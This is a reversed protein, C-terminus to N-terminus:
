RSKESSFNKTTKRCLFLIKSGARFQRWFRLIKKWCTMFIRSLAIDCAVSGVRAAVIVRTLQQLVSILTALNKKTWVYWILFFIGFSGLNHVYVLRGYIIGFPRLINCITMFYVLLKWESARWFKGLNPNPTQFYVM